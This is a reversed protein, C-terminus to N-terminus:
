ENIKNVSFTFHQKLKSDIRKILLYYLTTGVFAICVSLLENKTIYYTGFLGLALVLFPFLYAIVVAKAGTSKRLGVQVFEGVQFRGSENTSITIIEEKKNFSTCSNKAHCGACAAHREIEIFLMNNKIEKVTGQHCINM